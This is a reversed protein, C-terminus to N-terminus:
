LPMEGDDVVVAFRDVVGEQLLRLAVDLTVPEPGGGRRHAILPRRDRSARELAEVVTERSTSFHKRRRVHQHTVM